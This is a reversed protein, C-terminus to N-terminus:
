SRGAVYIYYAAIGLHTALVTVIRLMGGQVAIAPRLGGKSFSNRRWDLGMGGSKVFSTRGKFCASVKCIRLAAAGTLIAERRRDTISM